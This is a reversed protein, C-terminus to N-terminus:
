LAGRVGMYVEGSVFVIAPGFHPVHETPMPFCVFWDAAIIRSGAKTSAPSPTEVRKAKEVGPEASLPPRNARRSAEGDRHDTRHRTIGLTLRLVRVRLGKDAVRGQHRAGKGGVVAHNAIDPEVAFAARQGVIDFDRFIWEQRSALRRRLRTSPRRFRQLM